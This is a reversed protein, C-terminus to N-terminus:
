KKSKWYNSLVETYYKVVDNHKCIIKKMGVRNYIYDAIDFLYYEKIPREDYPYQMNLVHDLEYSFAGTELMASDQDIMIADNYKAELMSKIVKKPLGGYTIIPYKFRDSLSMDHVSM